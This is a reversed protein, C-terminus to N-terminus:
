EEIKLMLEDLVRGVIALSLENQAHNALLANLSAASADYNTHATRTLRFSYRELEGAYEIARVVYRWCRPAITAAEIANDILLAIGLADLRSLRWPKRSSASSSSHPPSTSEKAAQESITADGGGSNRVVFERLEELVCIEEGVQAYLWALEASM